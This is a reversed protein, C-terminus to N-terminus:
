TRWTVCTLTLLSVETETHAQNSYMRLLGYRGVPGRRCCLRKFHCTILDRTAVGACLSTLSDNQKVLPSPSLTDVRVEDIVVHVVGELGGGGSSLRRLLIGTTMFMVRAQTTAVVKEM